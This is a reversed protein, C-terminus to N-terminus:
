LDIYLAVMIRIGNVAHDYFMQFAGAFGGRTQRLMMEAFSRVFEWPIACQRCEFELTFPDLRLRFLGTEPDRSTTAWNIINHYFYHLTIIATGRPLLCDFTAVQVRWGNNLGYAPFVRRFPAPPYTSPLHSAHNNIRTPSPVLNTVSSVTAVLLSLAIILINLKLM